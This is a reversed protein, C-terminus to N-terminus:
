VESYRSYQAPPPMGVHRGSSCLRGDSVLQTEMRDQRLHLRLSQAPEGCQAGERQDPIQLVGELVILAPVATFGFAAIAVLRPLHVVAAAASEAACVLLDVEILQHIRM